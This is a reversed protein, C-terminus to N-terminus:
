SYCNHTLLISIFCNSMGKNVKKRRSCVLEKAFDGNRKSQSMAGAHTLGIMSCKTINETLSGFASESANNKASKPANKKSHRLLM